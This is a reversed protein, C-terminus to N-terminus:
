TISRRPGRWARKRTSYLLSCRRDVDFLSGRQEGDPEADPNWLKPFFYRLLLLFGGFGLFM